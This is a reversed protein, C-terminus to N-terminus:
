EVLPIFTNGIGQCLDELTKYRNCCTWGHDNTIKGDKVEYVKGVKFGFCPLSGPYSNATCIVKGNYYKAKAVEGHNLDSPKVWRSTCQTGTTGAMLPVGGCDHCIDTPKDFEVGIRHPDRDYKAFCIVTGNVGNFNVREGIKFGELIDEKLTKATLFIIPIQANAQRIEKALTFGDKKPMMVDLVCLDYKNKLFAKYGAEGDPYLETSYGKAQLYERLLMGLNEDDECLLIRLKEDMDNM